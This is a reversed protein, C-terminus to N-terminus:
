LTSDRGGLSRCDRLSHSAKWAEHASSKRIGEVQGKSKFVAQGLVPDHQFFVWIMGCDVHVRVRHECNVGDGSIHPLAKAAILKM